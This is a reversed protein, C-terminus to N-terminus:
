KNEHSGSNIAVGKLDNICNLSNLNLGFIIFLIFLCCATLIDVLIIPHWKKSIVRIM